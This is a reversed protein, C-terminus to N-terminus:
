FGYEGEIEKQVNDWDLVNDLNDQYDKLRNVVMKRRWGNLELSNKEELEIEKYKVKLYEWDHIPIFVGTVKGKNDSIYQLNM